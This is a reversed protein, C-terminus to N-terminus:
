RDQCFISTPTKQKIIQKTLKYANGHKLMGLYSNISEKQFDRNKLNRLMRKKTVTRLARHQPFHIWGLFDAGSALTTISVKKLHIDLQLRVGL